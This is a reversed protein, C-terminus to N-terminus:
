QSDSKRDEMRVEMVINGWGGCQVGVDSCGVRCFVNEPKEVGAYFLEHLAFVQAVLPQLAFICIKKPNKKSILNGPGDFYIKDGVQHRSNCGKSEVVEAIITKNLLGPARELILENRPNDKFAAFDEDSYELHDKMYNWMDESVKM